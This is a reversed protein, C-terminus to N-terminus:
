RFVSDRTRFRVEGNRMARSLLEVAAFLESTM